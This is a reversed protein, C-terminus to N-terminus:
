NGSGPDVPSRHDPASLRAAGANDGDSPPATVLCAAAHTIVLRDAKEPDYEYAALRHNSVAAVVIGAGRDSFAVRLEIRGETACTKALDPNTSAEAPVSTEGYGAKELSNRMAKRVVDYGLDSSNFYNDHRTAEAYAGAYAANVITELDYDTAKSGDFLTNDAAIAAGAPSLMAAAVLGARLSKVLM